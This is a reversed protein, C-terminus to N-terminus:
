ELKNFVESGESSRADHFQQEGMEFDSWDDIFQDSLKRDVLDLNATSLNITEWACDWYLDETETESACGKLIANHSLDKEREDEVVNIVIDSFREPADMFVNHGANQVMYVEVSSCPRRHFVEFGTKHDVPSNAGYIFSMAVNEDLQQMQSMIPEKAWFYLLNLKLFAYEGSAQLYNCYYHYNTICTEHNATSALVPATFNLAKKWFWTALKKPFCRLLFIPSIFNIIYNVIKISFPIGKEYSVAKSDENVASTKGAMGFPLETFGWPEVLVLHRVCEPYKTAYLTAIYGGFGHGALIFSDLGVADRWEELYSVFQYEIDRNDGLFQTRTSQGFGPLDLAYVICHQSILDFCPSWVALGSFLGHLLVLVPASRSFGADFRLTRIEVRNSIPIFQSKCSTSSFKQLIQLEAEKLHVSPRKYFINVAWSFFSTINMKNQKSQSSTTTSIM